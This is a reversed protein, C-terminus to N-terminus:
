DYRDLTLQVQYVNETASVRLDHRHPYMLELRRKLNKLGIGTESHQQKEYNNEISFCIRKGSATLDIKIYANERLNEVGHKFANELLIIFLLPVVQQNADVASRLDVQINKHYRMKHLEIYRTLFDIEEQLHVMERGGDYISYRMLDSLKLILAQAKAPDKAVLGYLNNLMNFFFHPNVQSQLLMLEAKLTENKLKAMRVFQSGLWFFALLLLLAYYCIILTVVNSHYNELFTVSTERTFIIEYTLVLVPVLVTALLIIVSYKRNRGPFAM